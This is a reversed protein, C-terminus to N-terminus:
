WLLFVGQRPIIKRTEKLVMKSDLTVINGAYGPLIKTSSVRCVTDALRLNCFRTACRFYRPLVLVNGVCGCIEKSKLVFPVCSFPGLLCLGQGGRRGM